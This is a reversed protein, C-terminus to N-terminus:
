RALSQCQQKLNGSKGRILSHRLKFHRNHTRLDAFIQSKRCNRAGNYRVTRKNSQDGQESACWFLSPASSVETVSTNAAEAVLERSLSSESSRVTPDINALAILHTGPMDVSNTDGM